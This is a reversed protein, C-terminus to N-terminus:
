RDTYNRLCVLQTRQWGCRKYFELGVFNNQDALLQMRSAGQQKSWKGLAALLSRGVGKGRCQEDVVLDEVLLSLRGEATSIVLQGTVMGLIKGKDRATQVIGTRGNILLKLGQAQLEADFQFDEEIAFLIEMLALLQDIDAETAPKLQYM